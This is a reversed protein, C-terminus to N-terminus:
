IPNISKAAFAVEDIERILENCANMMSQFFIRNDGFLSIVSFNFHNM